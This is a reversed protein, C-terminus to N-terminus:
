HGFMSTTQPRLDAGYEDNVQRIESTLILFEKQFCKRNFYEASAFPFSSCPMNHSWFFTSNEKGYGKKEGM